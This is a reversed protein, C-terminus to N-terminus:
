PYGGGSDNRGRKSGRSACDLIFAALVKVSEGYPVAIRAICQSDLAWASSTSWVPRGLASAGAFAITGQGFVGLADTGAVAAIRRRDGASLAPRIWRGALASM